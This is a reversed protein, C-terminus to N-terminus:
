SELNALDFFREFIQQLFFCANGRRTCEHSTFLKCTTSLYPELADRTEPIGPTQNPTDDEESITDEVVNFGTEGHETKIKTEPFKADLAAHANALIRQTIEKEDAPEVEHLTHM